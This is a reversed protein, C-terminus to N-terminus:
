ATSETDVFPLGSLGSERPPDVVEAKFKAHVHTISHYGKISMQAYAPM